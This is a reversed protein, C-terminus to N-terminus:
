KKVSQNSFVFPLKELIDSPILSDGKESYAADGAKGCLYAGCGAAAAASNAALLGGVIGALVDGTGGVSMGANGTANYRTKEVAGNSILDEPGKLLVTVGFKQSIESVAAELVEAAVDKRKPQLSIGLYEAARLLEQYHPTIIIEVNEDASNQEQEKNQNQTWDQKQILAEFIEPRLADADIVAKKFVPVLQAATKLSSPDRGLGPGIIVTDHSLILEKLLPIDNESLVDGSLKRVIFEPAYSAIPKYISSPAAITVIDCGARLAGAGALAPAGSYPGGAIVLIKGSDGKKSDATRKYLLSVDGPGIYKEANEPIGIPRVYIKGINETSSGELWTKMKHFTIVADAKIVSEKNNETKNKTSTIQNPAAPLMGSPVDVALVFLDKKMEKEHNILDIAAKEIGKPKGSFGTGFIGDVIVAANEITQFIEALDSESKIEFVSVLSTQKLLKFNLQSESTKIQNERGLLLVASRIGACALHRAAVFTDGGNNGLGAIFLVVPSDESTTPKSTIENIREAAIEAVAAGANEMLQLPSMGLGVANMDIAKMENATITKQRM